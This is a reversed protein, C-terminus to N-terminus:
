FIFKALTSGLFDIRYGTLLAIFRVDFLESNLFNECSNPITQLSYSQKVIYSYSISKELSVLKLILVSLSDSKSFLNWFSKQM